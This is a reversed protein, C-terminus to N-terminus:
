LPPNQPPIRSQITYKLRHTLGQVFESLWCSSFSLRTLLSFDFHFLRQFVANWFCLYGQMQLRANVFVQIIPAERTSCFNLNLELRLQHTVLEDLSRHIRRQGLYLDVM